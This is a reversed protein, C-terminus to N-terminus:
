REEGSDDSNSGGSYDGSDSDLEKASTDQGSEVDDAVVGSTSSDDEEPPWWAIRRQGRM